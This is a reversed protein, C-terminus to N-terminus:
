GLYMWIFGMGFNIAVLLMLISSDGTRVGMSVLSPNITQTQAGAPTRTPTQTRVVVTVATFTSKQGNPSTIVSEFSSTSTTLYPTTPEAPPTFIPTTPIQAQTTPSPASTTPVVPETTNAQRKALAYVKSALHKDAQELAEMAQQNSAFVGDKFHPHIAHL